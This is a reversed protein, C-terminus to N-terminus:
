SQKPKGVQLGRARYCVTTGGLPEQPPHLKMDGDQLVDIFQDKALLELMASPATPYTLRTLREIEEALEALGEWKCSRCKLKM